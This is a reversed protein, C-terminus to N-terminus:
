QPPSLPIIITYINTDVAPVSHHQQLQFLVDEVKDTVVLSNVSGEPVYNRWRSNKMLYKLKYMKQKKGCSHETARPTHFFYLRLSFLVYSLSTPSIKILM